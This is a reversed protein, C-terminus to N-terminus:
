PQDGQSILTLAESVIAFETEIRSLIETDEFVQMNRGIYELKNCLEVLRTAGLNASGSKLYHAKRFIEEMNNIVSAQRLASIINPTDDLYSRIVKRLLQKKGQPDIKRINNIYRDDIPSACETEIADEHSEFIQAHTAEQRSVESLTEKENVSHAHDVSEDKTIWRNLINSLQEQTYPKTLYDDMGSAMCTDRDLKSAHATLAIVVQRCDKGSGPLPHQEMQRLVRTAEYGDMVPMQCDMLVVSFLMSAMQDLAECGNSAVIVDYGLNRLMEVGVEQNVPNDEVLLITAGTAKKSMSPANEQDILFPQPKEAIGTLGILCNFLWSSRVPKTLFYRIGAAQTHEVADMIGASALMIIQMPPIAPDENIAHALEIGNMKPMMMDLIALHISEAPDANRLITLAEAGSSATIVKMGWSQITQELITRNTENDDVVLVSVSQLMEYNYPILAQHQNSPAEFCATFCFCSGVDPTSEVSANGGMLETLQRVITLGLGTGGYCRTTSGDAQSFAEFIKGMTDPPMGIGTDRVCFRNICKDENSEVVEVTVAIEGHDTFKVANNILNLLVQRLRAPDGVVIRSVSQEISVILELGKNHAATAFLEAAESVVDHLDFPIKELDLKGSEIKSFDLIDNIISLLAEGSNRITEAFQRQKDSLATRMLLETMGLVGNMPTRIEHSMNALFESKARNAIEATDRALELDAVMHQLERTRQAVTAELTDRRLVLERAQAEIQGLMENFGDIMHGIEDSNDNVARISYDKHHSVQSMTQNLSLIPRTILNQLRSAILYAALLAAFLIAASSAVVSFIMEWLPANSSHVVVFGICQGESMIPHVIYFSKGMRWFSAKGLKQLLAMRQRSDAAKSLETFETDDDAANPNKYSAFIMGDSNLIYACQVNPNASLPSLAESGGKPDAFMLSTTASYSVMDAIIGSNGLIDGHYRLVETGILVLSVLSVATGTTILAVLM